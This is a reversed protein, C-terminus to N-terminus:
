ALYQEVFRRNSIASEVEEGPEDRAVQLIFPGAYGAKRISTFCTNLDASGQGLPVTTGGLIRDKVHVSGLWPGLLPLEEHPSNGLAASNGIDYNARVLPLDTRQILDLLDPAQLDSEIHLETGARQAGDAVSKLISILTDVARASKLSAADVFPLVMYRIGLKGARGILWELHRVNADQAEGRSDVLHRTMYYDACVSLVKVGSESILQRMSALGEETGMPNAKETEEDYIWEICYLGAQSAKRFEEGWTAAPFIQIRGGVPPSLRGQMIGIPNLGPM